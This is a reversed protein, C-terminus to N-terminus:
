ARTQLIGSYWPMRRLWKMPRTVYPLGGTESTGGATGGGAVGGRGGGGGGAAGGLTPAWNVMPFFATGPAANVMSGGGGGGGGGGFGGGGYGGGGGGYGGGGYGGGGGGYGGGGFGGGGLGGGGGGYGGGGYGGGGGGYGGGGFGGGGLGGGGIGGGGGSLGSYTAQGYIPSAFVGELGQVFTNPDVHFTRLEMSPRDPTEPPKPFFWVAYDEVSFSIQQDAVQCIADLVEYLSVRYLPPYITIITNSANPVIPAAAGPLETAAAEAPAVGHPNFMFNVGLHELDYLTSNKQLDKM